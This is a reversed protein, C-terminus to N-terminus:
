ASAELVEIKVNQRDCQADRMAVAKKIQSIDMNDLMIIDPPIKLVEQFEKLNRVEM